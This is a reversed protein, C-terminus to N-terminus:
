TGSVNTDIIIRAMLFIAGFAGIISTWLPLYIMVYDAMTFTMLTSSFLQGTLLSQFQNSLYAAIVVGIAVVFIYPIFMLPHEKIFFNTILITLGECLIIIFAIIPLWTQESSNVVGFTQATAQTFNFGNSITGVNELSTTLLGHGWVWLGLFLVVVFSVIVWLIIDFLSGKKNKM